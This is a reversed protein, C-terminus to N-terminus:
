APKRLIILYEHNHHYVNHAISFWKAFAEKHMIGTDRGSVSSSYGVYDALFALVIEDVFEFGSELASEHAIHHLPLHKGAYPGIQMCCFREPKLVRLMEKFSDGLSSTFEKIDRYTGKEGYDMMDLYPPHAITLDVSADEIFSLDRSDGQIFRQKELWDALSPDKERVANFRKEKAKEAEPNIDVGIGFRKLMGCAVLTTGSGVFPDLVLENEKTYRLICNIPVILPSCGSYITGNVGFFPDHRRTVPWVSYFELYYQHSYEKWKSPDLDNIKLNPHTQSKQAITQQRPSSTIKLRRILMETERTTLNQAAITNAVELQKENSLSLMHRAHGETLTNGRTLMSQVPKPLELLKLHRNIWAVDKGIKRGLERQSYGLKEVAQKLVSAIEMPNFDERQLNEAMLLEFAESDTLNQVLAPITKLGIQQAALVRRMGAVLEYGRNRHRLIVPEILGLNEISLSLEALSKDDLKKRATIKGLRINEIPVYRFEIKSQQSENREVVEV